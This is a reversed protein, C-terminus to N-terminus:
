HERRRQLWREVLRVCIDYSLVIAGIIAYAAAFGRWSWEALGWWMAFFVAPVLGTTWLLLALVRTSLPTM